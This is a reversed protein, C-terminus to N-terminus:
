KVSSRSGLSNPTQWVGLENNFTKLDKKHKEKVNDQLAQKIDKYELINCVDKGCFYPHEHTGVIKIRQDKKSGVDFTIYDGSLNILACLADPAIRIM